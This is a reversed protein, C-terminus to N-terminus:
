AHGKPGYFGRVLEDELGTVLAPDTAEQYRKALAVFEERTLERNRDLEKSFAIVKLQEELPLKGLERIIDAASM